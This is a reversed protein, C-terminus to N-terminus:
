KLLEVGILQELECVLLLYDYKSKTYNLQTNEINIFTDYVDFYTAKGLEHKKEMELRLGEQYSLSQSFYDLKEQEIEIKTHLKQIQQKANQKSNHTELQRQKEKNAVQKNEIRKKSNYLNWNFRLSAGLYLPEESFNLDRGQLGANLALDLSPKFNNQAQLVQSELITSRQDLLKLQLDNASWLELLDEVKYDLDYVEQDLAIGIIEEGERKGLMDSLGLHDDALMANQEMIQMQIELQDLKMKDLQRQAIKHNRKKSELQEYFLQAKEKKTELLRITEKRKFYWFYRKKFKSWEQVLLQQYELKALRQELVKTNIKERTSFNLLPIVASLRADYEKTRLFEVTMDDMESYQRPYLVPGESPYDSENLYTLNNYVPNLLSGTPIFLDRGGRRLNYQAGLTLSPMRDKKSKEYELASYDIELQAVSLVTHKQIFTNKYVELQSQAEGLLSLLMFFSLTYLRFM